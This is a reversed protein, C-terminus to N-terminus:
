EKFGKNTTLLISNHEYGHNVVQFLLDAAHADYTLYGVEDICLLATATRGRRPPAPHHQRPLPAAQRVRVIEAPPALIRLTGVDSWPSKRGIATWLPRASARVASEATEPPSGLCREVEHKFRFSSSQPERIHHRNM